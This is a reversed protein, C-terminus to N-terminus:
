RPTLLWVDSDLTIEHLALTRGDPSVAPSSLWASGEAYLVTGRGELDVALAGFEGKELHMGTIVLSRGDPTFTLSQLLEASPTTPITRTAGTETAVLTLLPSSAALAVTKGDPSVAFSARDEGRFFPEETRGTLPDLKSLLMTQDHWVGAVCRGPDGGGCRIELSEGEVTRALEHEAGGPRGVVLRGSTVGAIGADADDPRQFLLEGTRLAVGRTAPPPVLLTAEPADPAQAYLALENDRRSFFLVRGDPLWSPSRDVADNRTLRRPPELLRRAGADLRALYVDELADDIVVSMRGGAVTLGSLAWARMSSLERPPSATAGGDDDLDLERIVCHDPEASRSTFLLRGQEPWALGNSGGSALAPDALVRRLTKGDISAVDLTPVDGYQVYAVHRGDPSFAAQEIQKGEVVTVGPGGDIPVLELGRTRRLVLLSRGDPSIWAANDPSERLRRAASGDLPASWITVGEPRYVSVVVRSVDSSFSIVDASQGATFRPVGLARRPGGAVPQVWVGEVDGFVLLSGDPTLAAESVNNGAPYATLRREVYGTAAVPRSAAAPLAVISARAPASSRSAMVGVAALGIAVVVAVLTTLSLSSSTRSWAPRSAPRPSLRRRPPVVSSAEVADVLARQVAAGDAPRDEPRKRLCASVLDELGEPVGPARARLPEPADRVIAAFTDIQTGRRFPSVGTLMEYLVVGFSFLDSRGDVPQGRTQEPSMYEPTGLLMGEDTLATAAAARGSPRRAPQAEDWRRALGFDLLKVTDNATIMVNEPKLDRHVIRARHAEALAAAIDRAVALARPVPLPGERLMERVLRGRVLEMALFVRGEAEGAEFVTAINPHMLGAATRAERLFRRRRAKDATFGAPLLKLAVERQLNTDEARYVRGMGGEGILGMVRFHALMFPLRPEVVPERSPARAVGVLWDPEASLPALDGDQEADRPM